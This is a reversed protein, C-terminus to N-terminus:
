IQQNAQTQFMRKSAENSTEPSFPCLNDSTSLSGRAWPSHTRTWPSGEAGTWVARQCPWFAGEMPPETGLARGTHVALSPRPPEAGGPVWLLRGLQLATHRTGAHAAQPPPTLSEGM